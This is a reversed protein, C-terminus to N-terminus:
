LDSAESHLAYLKTLAEIPTLTNVDLSKLENLIKDKTGFDFSLQEEESEFSASDQSVSESLSVSQQSELTKLIKKANNVVADPVGALKAVEIGYSGDAPGKVIRRLFTIDDGRKKVSTSYNKVGDVINELETLEHYHTAFLTKAGLIKKNATYELVARAISM